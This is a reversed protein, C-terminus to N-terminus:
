TTPVDCLQAWHRIWPPVLSVRGRKAWIRENEHPNKKSFIKKVFCYTPAGGRSNVCGRPFVLDVVPVLYFNFVKLTIYTWTNSITKDQSVNFVNHAFFRPPDDTCVILQNVETCSKMIGLELNTTPTFKPLGSFKKELPGNM